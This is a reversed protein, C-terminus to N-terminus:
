EKIECKKKEKVESERMVQGKGKRKGKWIEKM